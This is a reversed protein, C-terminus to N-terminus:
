EVRKGAIKVQKSSADGSGAETKTRGHIGICRGSMVAISKSLNNVMMYGVYM